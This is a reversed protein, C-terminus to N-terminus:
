QIGYRIEFKEVIEAAEYLPSAIGPSKDPKSNISRANAPSRIQVGSQANELADRASWALQVQKKEFLPILEPVEGGVEMQLDTLRSEAALFNKAKLDENFIIWNTLLHRQGFHRLQDIIDKKEFDSVKKGSRENDLYRLLLCIQNDEQCISVYDALSLSPFRLFHHLTMQDQPSNVKDRSVLDSNGQAKFWFGSVEKNLCDVHQPNVYALLLALELRKERDILEATLTECLEGSVYGALAAEKKQTQIWINWFIAGYLCVFLFASLLVWRGFLVEFDMPGYAQFRPDKSEVFTESMRDYFTFRQPHTLIEFFPIGACYVGVMWGLSRQFAQLLTLPQHYFSRVRLKLIKQGPTQAFALNVFTLLFLLLLNGIFFATVMGFAHSVESGFFFDHQILRILPSTCLYILPYFILIDIFSAIMRQQPLAAFRKEFSPHKEGAPQESFDYLVM